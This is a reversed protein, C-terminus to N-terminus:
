MWFAPTSSSPLMLPPPSDPSPPLLLILSHLKRDQTKPFPVIPFGYSIIPHFQTKILECILPMTPPYGRRIIRCIRHVEYRVKPLISDFHDDWRGNQEFTIVLFHVSNQVPLEQDSLTFHIRSENVKRLARKKGADSSPATDAARTAAQFMVVYSKKVNWIMHWDSAWTTLGNLANSLQVKGLERKGDVAQTPWIAVDDAFLAIQCGSCADVVDNIYILFLTPSLVCGQPVGATIARASSTM